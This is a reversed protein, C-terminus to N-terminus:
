VPPEPHADNWERHCAHCEHTPSVVFTEVNLATDFTVYYTVHVNHRQSHFTVELEDWGGDSPEGVAYDVLTEDDHELVDDTSKVFKEVSKVAQPLDTFM